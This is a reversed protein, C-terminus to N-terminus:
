LVFTINVAERSDGFLSIKEINGRYININSWGQSSDRINSSLDNLDHSIRGGDNSM